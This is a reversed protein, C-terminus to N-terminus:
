TVPIRPRFHTVSFAHVNCLALVKSGINHLEFHFDNINILFHIHLLLLFQTKLM